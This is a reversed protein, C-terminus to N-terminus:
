AVRLRPNKKELRAVVQEIVAERAAYDETVKDGAKRAATKIEEAADIEIGVQGAMSAYVKSATEATIWGSTEAIM